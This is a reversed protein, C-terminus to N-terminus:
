LSPTIVCCELPSHIYITVCKRQRLGNLKKAPICKVLIVRHWLPFRPFVPNKKAYYKVVVNVSVFIAPLFFISVEVFLLCHCLSSDWFDEIFIKLANFASIHIVKKSKMTITIKAFSNQPLNETRAFTSAFNINYSHWTFDINKKSIKCLNQSRQSPKKIRVATWARNKKM